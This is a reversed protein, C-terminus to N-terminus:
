GLGLAKTQVASGTFSAGFAQRNLNSPRKGSLHDSSLCFSRYSIMIESLEMWIPSIPRSLLNASIMGMRLCASMRLSSSDNAISLLLSTLRWQTWEVPM